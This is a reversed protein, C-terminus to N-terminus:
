KQPFNGPTLSVLKAALDLAPTNISSILGAFTTQALKREIAQRVRVDSYGLQAVAWGASFDLYRQGDLDFLYAGEGREVSFPTYRIKLADAILRNDREEAEAMAANMGWRRGPGSAGM